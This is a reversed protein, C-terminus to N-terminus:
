NAKSGANQYFFLIENVIKKKGEFKCPQQRELFYKCKWFRMSKKKLNM